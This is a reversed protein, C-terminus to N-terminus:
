LWKKRRFYYLQGMAILAMVVMLTVYGYKWHLEPMNTPAPEGSITQTQFNMGYVGVLFTLPIFISSIVTLVRMIENTRMGVRSLYLEFMSSAVDRYSEILDMIQISHDYLDRLFVKTEPFVLPHETHLLSSVLDREPWVYRRLQM